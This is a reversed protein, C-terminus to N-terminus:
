NGKGNDFFYYKGDGASDTKERGDSPTEPQPAPQEPEPQPEPEPEPEPAPQQPQSEPEPTAPQQPQTYNPQQPQRPPQAPTQPQQSQPAQTRGTTKAQDQVQQESTANVRENEEQIKERQAKAEEQVKKLNEEANGSKRAEAEMREAIQDSLSSYASLMFAKLKKALLKNDIEDVRNLLEEIRADLEDYTLTDNSELQKVKAQFDNITKLQTTGEDIFKKVAQYFADDTKALQDSFKEKFAKIDGAKTQDAIVFLGAIADGNLPPQKDATEFHEALFTLAEFREEVDTMMGEVRAKDENRDNLADVSERVQRVEEAKIDKKLFTSGSQLYLKEITKQVNEAAHSKTEQHLDVEQVAAYAGAGVILFISLAIVVIRGWHIQKDKM